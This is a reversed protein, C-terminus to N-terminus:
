SIPNIFNQPQLRFFLLSQFGYCFAMTLTLSRHAHPASTAAKRTLLLIMSSGQSLRRNTPMERRDGDGPGRLRFAKM